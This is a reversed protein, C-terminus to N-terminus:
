VKILRHKNYLHSEIHLYKIRCVVCAVSKKRKKNEDLIRKLVRKREAESIRRPFKDGKRFRHVNGAKLFNNLYKRRHKEFHNKKKWYINETILAEQYPLGFKEKYDKALIGHGHWLHSGLHRYKKGCIKCTLKGRYWLNKTKLKYNM